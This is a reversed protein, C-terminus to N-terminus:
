ISIEIGSLEAGEAHESDCLVLRAADIQKAVLYDKVASARAEGLQALAALQEGTLELEDAAVEATEAFLAIRDASNTFGCLTVDVGPRETMLTAIKDLEATETQAIDSVGAPYVVPEFELATALSFLGDALTVLGFPTYYNLVAATIASSMAQRIADNPDFDPNELDGTIPIELQIRNERDRLLSLSANLPFGFSSDLKAENEASTATLTFENLTLDVLSDLVAREAKLRLDADLQGSKIRHGIADITFPSVDRMDLGEIRGALDFFPKGSLPTVSGTIEIKGHTAYRASYELRSPLDPTESDLGELTLRISNLDVVFAQELSNDQYRLSRESSYDLKGLAFSFGGAKGNEASTEAVPQADSASPLWEEIELAGDQRKVLAAEHGRVEVTGIELRQLDRLDLQTLSLQDLRTIHSQQQNEARELLALMDLEVTGIGIQGLGDIRVQELSFRDFSLLVRELRNNLLELADLRFDGAANLPLVEADLQALDLSLSGQWALEAFGGCYDHQPPARYCHKFGDIEFDGFDLTWALPESNDSDAIPATEPQGAGLDIGAIVLQAQPGREIDVFVGGLSVAELRLRNDFLPRWAWEVTLTDVALLPDAPTGARLGRLEFRGKRLDYAIDEIESEIGQQLLWDTIAFETLPALALRLIAVLAVIVLLPWLLFMKIRRNVPM